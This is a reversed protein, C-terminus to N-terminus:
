GPNFKNARVVLARYVRIDDTIRLDVGQFACAMKLAALQRHCESRWVHVTVGLLQDKTKVAEIVHQLPTGTDMGFSLHRLSGPLHRFVTPLTWAGETRFERLARCSIVAHAHKYTACSPLALSHLHGGHNHILFDLFDFSPERNLEIARLSKAEASSHLLWGLFDLSPEVQCNMRLERLASPYCPRRTLAPSLHPTKGTISLAYLGPWIDLFQVIADDIDSWNSLHLHRIAPGTRLLDLVPQLLFSPSWRGRESSSYCDVNKRLEGGYLSLNLHSLNPCLTVADAFSIQQLPYPHNNDLIAHMSIVTDGLTRGRATSRDVAYKFSNYATQSSLRVCRFLLRQAYFSWSRCVLSCSILIQTDPEHDDRFQALEMINLVIELPIGFM